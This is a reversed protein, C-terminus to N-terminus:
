KAIASTLEGCCHIFDYVLIIFTFPPMFVRSVFLVYKNRPIDQYSLQVCHINRELPLFSVNFHMLRPFYVVINYIWWILVSTVYITYILYKLSRISSSYINMLICNYNNDFANKM